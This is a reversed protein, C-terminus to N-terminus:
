LFKRDRPPRETPVLGIIGDELHHEDDARQALFQAESKTLYPTNGRSKDSWRALQEAHGFNKLM